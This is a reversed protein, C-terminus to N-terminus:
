FPSQRGQANQSLSSCNKKGFHNVNKPAPSLFACPVSLLSSYPPIQITPKLPKLMFVDSIQPCKQGPIHGYACSSGRGSPPSSQLKTSLFRMATFGPSAKHLGTVTPNKRRFGSITSLQQFNSEANPNIWATEADGPKSFDVNQSGRGVQCTGISDSLFLYFFDLAISEEPFIHHLAIARHLAAMQHWKGQHRGLRHRVQERCNWQPLSIFFSLQLSFLVFFDFFGASKPM